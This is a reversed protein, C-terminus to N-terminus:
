HDYQGSQGTDPARGSPHGAKSTKEGHEKRWLEKILRITDERKDPDALDLTYFRPPHEERYKMWGDFDLGQTEKERDRGDIFVRWEHIGDFTEDNVGLEKKIKIEEDLAVQCKKYWDDLEKNSEELRKRDEIAGVKHQANKYLRDIRKM